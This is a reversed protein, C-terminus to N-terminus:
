AQHTREYEAEDATRNWETCLSAVRETGTWTDGDHLWEYVAQHDAHRLKPLLAAALESCLRDYEDSGREANALRNIITQPKMTDEGRLMQQRQMETMVERDIMSEMLASQTTGRREALEAFLDRHTRSIKVQLNVKQTTM